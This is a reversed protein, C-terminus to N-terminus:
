KDRYQEYSKYSNYYTNSTYYYDSSQEHDYGTLVTGLIGARIRKLNELTQDLQGSEAVGFRVVLVVGDAMSMIPASDTIIGYPASDV